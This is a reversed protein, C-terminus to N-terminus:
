AAADLGPIRLHALRMEVGEEILWAAQRRLTDELDILAFLLADAADFRRQKEAVARQTTLIRVANRRAHQWVTPPHLRINM